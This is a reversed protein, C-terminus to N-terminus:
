AAEKKKVPKKAAAKAAAKAEKGEYRSKQRRKKSQYPLFDDLIIRADSVCLIKTAKGETKGRKSKSILRHRKHAARSQVKGTKTVSFRKKAGSHTKMKPM